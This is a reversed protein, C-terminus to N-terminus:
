MPPPDDLGVGGLLQGAQGFQGPDRDDGGQHRQPRERVIVLLVQPHRPHVAGDGSDTRQLTGIEQDRDPRSEVVPHGPLQRRECRFGLDDVGVDVGGLDPLVLGDVDRDHAIGLRDEGGEGVM